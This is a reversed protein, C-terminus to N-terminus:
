AIGQNRLHNMIVPISVGGGDDYFVWWSNTTGDFNSLTGDNGGEVDPYTTGAGTSNVYNHELVGDNSFKFTYTDHARGSDGFMYMRQMDFLLAGAGTGCSVGDQFLELTNATSDGQFIYVHRGSASSPLTYNLTSSGARRVQVNTTTTFFIINNSNGLRGIIVSNSATLDIDFEVEFDGTYGTGGFTTFVIASDLDVQADADTSLKRLFYAM